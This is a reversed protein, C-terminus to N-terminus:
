SVIYRLSLCDSEFSPLEEVEQSFMCTRADILQSVLCKKEERKACRRNSKKRSKNVCLIKNNNNEHTGRM